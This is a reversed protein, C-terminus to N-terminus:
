FGILRYALSFMLSKSKRNLETKSIDNIGWSYRVDFNFRSFEIGAGAQFNWNIKKLNDEKWSIDSLASELISSKDKVKISAAPGALGYLNFAELDLIKLHALIPIDWTYLSLKEQYSDEVLQFDTAGKIKAYYLEPQLYLNGLLRFRSYAGIQYGNKFDDKAKKFTYESWNQFFDHGNGTDFTTSNFGAKIGLQFRDQASLSLCSFFLLSFFLFGTKKM